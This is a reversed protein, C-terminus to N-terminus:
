TRYYVALTIIFVFAVYLVYIMRLRKKKQELLWESWQNVFSNYKKAQWLKWFLVSVVLFTVILMLGNKVAIYGLNIMAIVIIFVWYLGENKEKLTSHDLNEIPCGCRPCTRAESSIKKKCEPCIIMAM